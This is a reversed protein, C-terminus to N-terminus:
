NKSWAKSTANSQTNAEFCICVLVDGSERDEDQSILQSVGDSGRGKPQDDFLTVSHHKYEVEFNEYVPRTPLPLGDCRRLVHIQNFSM